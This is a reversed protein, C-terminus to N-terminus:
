SPVPAAMLALDKSLAEITPAPLARGRASGVIRALERGIAPPLDSRGLLADLDAITAREVEAQHALVMMWARGLGSRSALLLATETLTM